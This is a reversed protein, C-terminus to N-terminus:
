CAASPLTTRTGDDRVDSCLEVSFPWPEPDDRLLPCEPDFLLEVLKLYVLCQFISSFIKSNIRDRTSVCRTFLAIGLYRKEPLNEENVFSSFDFHMRRLFIM